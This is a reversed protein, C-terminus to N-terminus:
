REGRVRWEGCEEWVVLRKESTVVALLKGQRCATMAVVSEGGVAPTQAATLTM